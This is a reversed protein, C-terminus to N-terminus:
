GFMKSFVKKQGDKQKKLLKDLREHSKKLDADDPSAALGKKIDKLANDLEGLKEWCLSRRFVAKINKEDLELVDDCSTKAKKFFPEAANKGGSQAATDAAKIYCQASNLHCSVKIKKTEEVEDPTLNSVVEPRSVHEIAKKYRRIADDFKQAKFMDNGEDKNKAALRIRDDKKMVREDKDFDMGLEKRREREEEAAKEIEKEQDEFAKAKKEFYAAGEKKVFDEIEQLKDNYAKLSTPEESMDADEFWLVVKDLFPGMIDPKLLAGDKGNLWERVQYVYSELSNRKELRLVEEDNVAQITSERKRASALEEATLLGESAAMCPVVQRGAAWAAAGTAVCSAGDLGFRIPVDEGVAARIIAQIAPVRGGGGVLEVGELSSGSAAVAEALVEKFRKLMDAAATELISRSMQVSVDIEPGDPGEPMFAELGMEADPLMSLQKLCHVAENALRLGAKSQLKVTCKHKQEIRSKAENLLALVLSQVGLVEDSCRYLFEAAASAEEKPSGDEVQPRHFRVVSVSGHSAGLDVFGVVREDTGEPLLASGQSHAFAAALADSHRLLNAVPKLGSLDLADRVVAVERDTLFDHVAICLKQPQVATGTAYTVLATLLSSLPGSPSVTFEEGDFTVPGLKGDEQSPFLWQFRQCRQHFADSQVLALPLHSLTQKPASMLRGEAGMGVHRLKDDYSVAAPTSRGSVDNTNVTVANPETTPSSAVVCNVGLDIGVFYGAETSEPSAGGAM